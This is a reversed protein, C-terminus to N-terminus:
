RFSMETVAGWITVRDDGQLFGNGINVVRVIQKTETVREVVM